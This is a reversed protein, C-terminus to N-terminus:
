CKLFNLSYCHFLSYSEVQYSNLFFIQNLKAKDFSRLFPRLAAKALKLNGMNFQTWQSAFYFMSIINGDKSLFINIYMFVQQSAKEKKEQKIIEKYRNEEKKVPFHSSSVFHQFYPKGSRIIYFCLSLCHPFWNHKSDRNSSLADWLHCKM